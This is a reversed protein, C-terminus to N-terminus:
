CPPAIKRPSRTGKALKQQLDFETDKNHFFPSLNTLALIEADEQELRVDFELCLARELERRRRSSNGM